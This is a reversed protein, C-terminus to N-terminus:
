SFTFKSNALMIQNRQVERGRVEAKLAASQDGDSASELKDRAEYLKKELRNPVRLEDRTLIVGTVEVARKHLRREKSINHSHGHKRLVKKIKWIASEPIIRGSVTIDDAFVSLTLGSNETICFIEDWMDVYCCFALIPSCPSGQPLSNNRTVIGRIISAVDPSCEMRKHFFWIVKNETCNSFYDEIDLLHFSDAGLHSAANSVYSRGAVPAFLYDPPVIRGLLDAIRRQVIKLDDRPASIKRTGGSRKHKEFDFYPNVERALNQLKKQNSFLLSALKKRSKLRFFPSDQENHYLKQKM